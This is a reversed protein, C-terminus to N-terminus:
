QKAHGIRHHGFEIQPIYEACHTETQALHHRLLIGAQNQAVALVAADAEMGQIKRFVLARQSLPCHGINGTRQGAQRQLPPAGRDGVIPRVQLRKRVGHRLQQDHFAEVGHAGQGQQRMVAHDTTEIQGAPLLLREAFLVDLKQTLHGSLDGERHVIGQGILLDGFEFISQGFLLQIQFFFNAKLVLEVVDDAVTARQLLYQPLDFDHRRGLRGHQNLAFGARPFFQNGPRNVPEASPVLPGEHLEIAGRNRGPQQFTLQEPMFPPCEGPGNGLFDAPEFQRM